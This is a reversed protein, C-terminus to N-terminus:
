VMVTIVLLLFNLVVIFTLAGHKVGEAVCVQFHVILVRVLMLLARIALHLVWLLHRVGILRQAVFLVFNVTFCIDLM